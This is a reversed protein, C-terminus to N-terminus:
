VEEWQSDNIFVIHKKAGKPLYISDAISGDGDLWIQVKRGQMSWGNARAIVGWFHVTKDILQQYKQM